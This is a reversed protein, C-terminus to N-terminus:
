FQCSYWESYGDWLTTGAYLMMENLYVTQGETGLIRLQMVYGNMAEVQATVTVSRNNETTIERCVKNGVQKESNESLAANFKSNLSAKMKTGAVTDAIGVPLLLVEKALQGLACASLLLGCCSLIVVKKVLM